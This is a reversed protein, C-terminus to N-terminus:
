PHLGATMALVSGYAIGDTASTMASTSFAPDVGIRQLLVPISVGLVAALTLTLGLTLSGFITILPNGLWWSTSAWLTVGLAIWLLLAILIERRLLRASNHPGIQGLALGRVTLTATQTAFIGGLSAVIPMLVAVEGMREITEEFQSVILGTVAAGFLGLALWGSRHLFTRFVGSFFDARASLYGLRRVAVDTEELMVDVADDATIRGLLRGKRGVVALSNLDLDAFLQAVEHAPATPAVSPASVDLLEGALKEPAATALRDLPIVGLFREHRDVVFLADLTPPLPRRMRLYRLVVDVTVDPRVTLVDPNMLGGATDAPYWLARRLRARDARSLTADRGLEALVRARLAALQEPTHQTRALERAARLVSRVSQAQSSM